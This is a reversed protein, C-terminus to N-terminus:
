SARRAIITESKIRVGPIQVTGKFMSAAKNLNTTNPELYALPQLGAAVAKVLAMVDLVEASWVERYSEGGAKVPEVVAVKPVVTPMELVAEAAQTMGENQLMEAAALQEEEAQRRAEEEAKRRKEAARAQEARYWETVKKDIQKRLEKFAFMRKDRFAIADKHMQHASKILPEHEAEIEKVKSVCKNAIENAFNYSEQDIIQLSDVAMQIKQIETKDRLELSNDIVADM